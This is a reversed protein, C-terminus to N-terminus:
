SSTSLIAASLRPSHHIISNHSHVNCIIQFIILVKTMDAVVCFIVHIKHLININLSIVRYEGGLRMNNAFFYVVSRLSSLMVGVSSSM